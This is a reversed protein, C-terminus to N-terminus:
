PQMSTQALHGWKQPEGVFHSCGDVGITKPAAIPPQLRPPHPPSGTASSSALLARPTGKRLSFTM